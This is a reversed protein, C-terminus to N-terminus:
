RSRTSYVIKSGCVRRAIPRSAFGHASPSYIYSTTRVPVRVSADLANFEALRLLAVGKELYRLQQSARKTFIPKGQAVVLELASLDHSSQAFPPLLPPGFVIPAKEVIRDFYGRRLERDWCPRSPVLIAENKRVAADEPRRIPTYEKWTSVAGPRAGEVIVPAHFFPFGDGRQRM